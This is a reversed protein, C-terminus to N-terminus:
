GLNHQSDHRLAVTREESDRVIALANGDRVPLPDEVTEGSEVVGPSPVSPSGSQSEGDHLFEDASVAAGDDQLIVRRSHAGFHSQRQDSGSRGAHSRVSDSGATAREAATAVTDAGTTKM